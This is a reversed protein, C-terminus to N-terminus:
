RHSAGNWERIAGGERQHVPLTFLRRRQEAAFGPLTRFGRKWLNERFDCAILNTKAAIEAVCKRREPAVRFGDHIPVIGQDQCRCAPQRNSKTFAVDVLAHAVIHGLVWLAPTLASSDKAVDAVDGILGWHHQTDVAIRHPRLIFLQM